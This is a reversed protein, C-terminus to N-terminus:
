TEDSLMKEYAFKREVELMSTGKKIEEIMEREKIYINTAAGLVEEAKEQPIIVVGSGDAMVIDGPKVQANGCRVLTNYSEQTIRGRATVPVVGRAYVPFGMDKIDDLDRFAGDIIVGKIGKMKAAYSLVEGWCSVDTRGGNDIVIVEGAKAATIAEAGLHYKSTVLGSATIKITVAEGVIKPCDFVPLIGVVGSKLNLKDLADSINTTSFTYLKKIIGKIKQDKNSKM